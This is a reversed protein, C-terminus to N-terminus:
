AFDLTHIAIRHINTEELKKEQERFQITRAGAIKKKLDCYITGLYQKKICYEIDSCNQQCYEIDLVVFICAITNVGM